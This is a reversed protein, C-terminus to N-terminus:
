ARIVIRIGGAEMAARIPEATVEGFVLGDPEVPM